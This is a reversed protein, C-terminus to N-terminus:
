LRYGLRLGFTRPRGTYRVIVDPAVTSVFTAYDQNALNRVFVELTWRDGFGMGARADVVAYPNLRLVPIDGLDANSSSLFTVNSGVFAERRRGVAWRYEAGGVLHWEPSLPFQEGGLDRLTGLGDYSRFPGEIRSHTYSAGASLRLGAAPTIGLEVEGGWVHSRPVNVLAGLPGIRPDITKGRLQKDRYDYYFGAATISLLDRSDTIKVGAEYAVVSEPRAPVFQSAATAALTPFSGSKRGRSVTAYALLGEKPAWKLGGRWAWNRDVLTGRVEAPLFTASLTACGGTPIIVRKGSLATAIRSVYAAGTGDGDDHTCGEFSRDEDTYRLGGELTLTPALSYDASAFLAWSRMTQRGQQDVGDFPYSSQPFRIRLGDRTREHQYSGGLVWHLGGTAGSARLEQSLISVRGPTRAEFLQLDTGDADVADNRRLHQWSSISTIKVAGADYDGRLVLQRFDSDKKFNQGPTWDVIRNGRIRQPHTFLASPLAPSATRVALLQGAESDSRDRWLNMNLLLSLRSSPAWRALLRAALFDAGGRTDDRTDSQQWDGGGEYRVAARLGLTSTVPGSVYGESSSQGFHDLTTTIGAALAPTPKATVFNVAGGTANQGFLTGQPGKAVEVRDVDLMAGSALAPYSLPAEDVYLSVAPPATLSTDYFGVGRLTLVPNGYSSRTYTFGPVRKSLDAPRTLGAEAIASSDLEQLSGTSAEPHAGLKSGTVIIDDQARAVAAHSLAAVATALSLATTRRLNMRKEGSVCESRRRSLSRLRCLAEPIPRSPGIRGNLYSLEADSGYGVATYSTRQTTSAYSELAHM